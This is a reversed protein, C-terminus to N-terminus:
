INTRTLTPVFDGAKIALYDYVTSTANMATGVQFGDSILSQIENASSAFAPLRLTDDGVENSLRIRGSGTTASSKAIVIDPQFGLGTINRDDTGDGTDQGVKVVGSINKLAWYDYGAGSSNVHVTTGVQFGTSTLSQIIDSSSATASYFGSIDGTMLSTRYVANATGNHLAERLTVLCRPLVYVRLM